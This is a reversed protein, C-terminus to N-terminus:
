SDQREVRCLLMWELSCCIRLYDLVPVSGTRRLFTSHPRQARLNGIWHNWRPRHLRSRLAYSSTQSSINTYHGLIPWPLNPWRARRQALRRPFLHKRRQINNKPIKLICHTYSIVQWRTFKPRFYIKGFKAKDRCLITRIDCMSELFAILCLFPTFHSSGSIITTIHMGYLIKCLVFTINRSHIM